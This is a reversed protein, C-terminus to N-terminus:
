LPEVKGPRLLHSCFLFLCRSDGRPFERRRRAICSKACSCLCPTSPRGVPLLSSPVRRELHVLKGPITISSFLPELASQMVFSCIWFTTITLGMGLGRVSNPLVQGGLFLCIRFTMLKLPTRPLSNLTRQLGVETCRLVGKCGAKCFGDSWSTGLKGHMHGFRITLLDDTDQLLTFVVCVTILPALYLRM